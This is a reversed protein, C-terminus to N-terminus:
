YKRDPLHSIQLAYDFSNYTDIPNENKVVLKYNGPELEFVSGVLYIASSDQHSIVPTISKASYLNKWHNSNDSLEKDLKLSLEIKHNKPIVKNQKLKHLLKTMNTDQFNEKPYEKWLFSFSLAYPNKNEVTFFIIKEYNSKDLEFSTRIPVVGSTSYKQNTIESKNTIDSCSSLLTSITLFYIIKILVHKKSIYNLKNKM